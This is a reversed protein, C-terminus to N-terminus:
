RLIRVMECLDQDRGDRCRFARPITGCVTFGFKQYLAIARHNETSVSLEVQAFGVKEALCLAQKVMVSGLGRGWHTRSVAIGLTARHRLKDRDGVPLLGLSAAPVGDLEAILMVRRPHAETEQLFASEQEVTMTVEDPYRVLFETEGATQVLHQLLAAADSAAASRLVCITGDPLRVVQYFKM